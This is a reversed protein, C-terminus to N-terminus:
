KNVKKFINDVVENVMEEPSKRSLSTHYSNGSALPFNNKPDRITITLEVMYMTIDWMWKDRYTVVVDFQQSDPLPGTSVEYGMARFKDAILLNIGRGDPALKQVFVKNIQALNASPDVTAKTKNVSCGSLFLIILSFTLLKIKNLPIELIFIQILPKYMYHNTIICIINLCAVM